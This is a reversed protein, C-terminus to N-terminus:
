GGTCVHLPEGNVEPQGSEYSPTRKGKRGVAASQAALLESRSKQVKALADLLKEQGEPSLQMKREHASAVYVGVGTRQQTRAFSADYHEGAHKAVM